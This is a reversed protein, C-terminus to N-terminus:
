QKWITKENQERKDKDSQALGQIFNKSYKKHAVPMKGEEKGQQQKQRGGVKMERIERKDKKERVAEAKRQPSTM